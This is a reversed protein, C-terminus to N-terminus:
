SAGAPLPAPPLAPEVPTAPALRYSTTGGPLQEKVIVGRRELTRLLAYLVSRQIGSASALEAVSVGPRQELVRLVAARNAGRPARTGSSRRPGISRRRPRAAPASAPRTTRRGSPVHAAIGGLAALATELREYERVTPEADRLRARIEAHIRNLLQEAM